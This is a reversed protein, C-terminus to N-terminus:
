AARVLAGSFSTYKGGLTPNTGGANQYGYAEVYDTTGNFYIVASGTGVVAGNSSNPIQSTRLYETGNKYIASISVGSGSAFDWFVTLSIQYYGAVTPTFRYNTSSDFCNATDFYESQFAIKTWTATTFNQAGSPYVSFAPGTGAVGTGLSSQSVANDAVMGSGVQTLAM